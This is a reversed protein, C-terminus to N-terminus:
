AEEDMKAKRQEEQSEEGKKVKKRGARKESERQGGLGSECM